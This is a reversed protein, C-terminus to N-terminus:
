SHSRLITVARVTAHGRWDLAAAPSYSAFDVEWGGDPRQQQALRTLEADIVEPAFLRRAAGDPHPAFDFPRMSEGPAGGIVPVLGNDPIHRGLASLLQAADPRDDAIMDLLRVAFALELAFPEAPLAAIARLCYHTARDLWPHGAVAPITGPWRTPSPRSWRPSRCRRRTRTPTAGLVARLRGPRPHAARVATWRRAPTVSDLWDCLVAAEPTTTPALDAFVEFAHLAGGPQSTTSRLDPELGWGYGGDPNRYAAVAAVAAAPDGRGLVLEFRRRDVM